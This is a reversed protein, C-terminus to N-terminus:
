RRLLRFAIDPGQEMGYALHVWLRALHELQEAAHLGGCDVVDFGLDSGLRAARAKADADDGCVLLSAARGEFSPDEMGATGIANFAKVVHTGPLARALMEACSRNGEPRERIANTADLLVKGRLDGLGAVYDRAVHWPTALLLTDAQAAAQAPLAASAGNGTQEVLERVTASTPTRSGYVITHGARAWGPGLTSGVDGTGLIAIHM